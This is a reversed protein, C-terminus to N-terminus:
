RLFVIYFFPISIIFCATNFGSLFWQSGTMNAGLVIESLPLNVAHSPLLQKLKRQHYDTDTDKKNNCTLIVPKVLHHHRATPLRPLSGDRILGMPYASCQSLMFLVWVLLSVIIQRNLEGM